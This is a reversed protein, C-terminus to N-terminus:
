SPLPSLATLRGQHLKDVLYDSFIRVGSVFGSFVRFKNHFEFNVLSAKEFVSVLVRFLWLSKYIYIPPFM